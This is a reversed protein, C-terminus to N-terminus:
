SFSWLCRSGQSINQGLCIVSDKFSLTAYFYKVAPATTRQMTGPHSQSRLLCQEFTVILM